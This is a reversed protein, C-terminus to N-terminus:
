FQAPQSRSSVARQLLYSAGAGAFIIMFPELPLRYRITGVLIMLVGTYGLAFLLIPSLQRLLRRKAFLGFGAFLLVPAFSGVSIIVTRTNRFAENVPWFQWIRQFKLAALKLFRQPNHVIYDIAADRLATDRKIPDTINAFTSLDYDVGLNGGGSHNLPNNGAFLVVGIGLTLRVFGGYAKYNNLWWPAMLACYVTLYVALHQLAKTLPLRHVLLAFLLVLGPAFIDFIPRTLIALVAFIAAVTFRGRYWYLFALLVLTIFLTESLGVVSFFILPPYCAAVAASIIRAYQDSFFQDALVYVLWVSFVSLTIDTGLQGIGPGTIAILLPYLPMQYPNVMLGTKLFYEASDRYDLVDPLTQSQDPITIAAIVRLAVALGLVGFVILRETNPKISFTM